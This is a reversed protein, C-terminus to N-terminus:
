DYCSCSSYENSMISTWLGSGLLADLTAQDGVVECKAKKNGIRIQAFTVPM